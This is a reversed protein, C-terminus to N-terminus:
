IHEKIVENVSSLPYAPGYGHCTETGRLKEMIAPIDIDLDENNLSLENLYDWLASVTLVEQNEIAYKKSELEVGNLYLPTTNATIFDKKTKPFEFKD